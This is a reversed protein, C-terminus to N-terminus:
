KADAAKAPLPLLKINRFQINPAHDGQLGIQRKEPAGWNAYNKFKSKAFRAKYDDSSIDYEAVKTGNLWHEVHNNDVVIRAHNWEGAPKRVDASPSYLDYVSACDHMDKGDSEPHDYLQYEPGTHWSVAGTENIRYLIGSNGGPPLKFDLDLIYNDYSGDTVLDGGKSANILLGDEAKWNQSTGQKKFNHWGATDTGDFLLVWGQQQEAASLTNAGSAPAAAAAPVDAALETVHASFFKVSKEVNDILEQGTTKEYEISMVGKFGQSKLEDLIAAIDVKGTGWVVDGFGAYGGGGPEPMVDKMHLSIIHGKLKQVSELSSLGSRVFHGIDACSGIRKSHGDIAKLLTDPNWYRSPKPHDHISINIKYEETLKDLLDMNKPDPEAVITKVGLKKAFDFLKRTTEEGKNVDAVGFNDPITNTEKLKAKLAAIDEDSLDPGVHANPKDPSLVQGPYFEAHHIGMAHIIDITEFATYERFTWFQCGLKWGLKKLSAHDIKASPVDLTLDKGDKTKVTVEAAHVLSGGLMAVAAAIVFRRLM